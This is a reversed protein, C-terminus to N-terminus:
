GDLRGLAALSRKGGSVLLSNGSRLRFPPPRTCTPNSFPPFSYSSRAMLVSAMHAGVVHVGGPGARGPRIRTILHAKQQDASRAGALSGLSLSQGLSEANGM